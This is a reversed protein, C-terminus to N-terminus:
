ALDSIPLLVISTHSPARIINRTCGSPAIVPRGLIKQLGCKLSQSLARTTVGGRLGELEQPYTTQKPRPM